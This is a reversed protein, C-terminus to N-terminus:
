LNLKRYIKLNVAQWYSKSMTTTRIKLLDGDIEETLLGVM